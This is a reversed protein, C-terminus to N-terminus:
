KNFMDFVIEVFEGDDGRYYVPTNEAVLGLTIYKRIREAVSQNNKTAHKGVEEYVKEPLNVGYKVM